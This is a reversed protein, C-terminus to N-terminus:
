PTPAQQLYMYHQKTPIIPVTKQYIKLKNSLNGCNPYITMKGSNQTAPFKQSREKIPLAQIWAQRQQSKLSNAIRFPTDTPTEVWVESTIGPQTVGEPFDFTM